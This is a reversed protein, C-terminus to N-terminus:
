PQDLRSEIRNLQARMASVEAELRALRESVVAAGVSHRELQDIRENAAGAWTLAGAAQLTLALVVAISIRRDLQLGAKSSESM